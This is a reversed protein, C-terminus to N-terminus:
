SRALRVTCASSLTRVRWLLAGALAGLSLLFGQAVGSVNLLQGTAIGAWAFFGLAALAIRGAIGLQCHFLQLARMAAILCSAAAAANLINM